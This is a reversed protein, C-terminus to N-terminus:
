YYCYYCDDILLLLIYNYVYSRYITVTHQATSCTTFHHLIKIFLLMIYLYYCNTIIYIVEIFLLIFLLM